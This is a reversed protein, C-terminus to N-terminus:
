KRAYTVGKVTLNNIGNMKVVRPEVEKEIEQTNSKPKPPPMFGDLMEIEEDTLEAGDVYHYIVDKDAKSNANM